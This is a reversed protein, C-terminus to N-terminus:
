AIEGGDGEGNAGDVEPGADDPNRLYAEFVQAVEVVRQPTDTSRTARIAHGLAKNRVDVASSSNTM